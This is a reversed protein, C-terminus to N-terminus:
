YQLKKSVHNVFYTGFTFAMALLLYGITLADLSRLFPDLGSRFNFGTGSNRWVFLGGIPMLVWWGVLSRNMKTTQWEPHVRGKSRPADALKQHEALIKPTVIMNAFPILWSGITLGVSFKRRSTEPIMGTTVEHVQASWIVMMVFAAIGVLVLYILFGNFRGAAIAAGAIDTSRAVGGLSQRYSYALLAAIGFAAVQASMLIQTAMSLGTSVVVRRRAHRCCETVTPLPPVAPEQDWAFQKSSLPDLETEMTLWEGLSPRVDTM